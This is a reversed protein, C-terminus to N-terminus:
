HNRREPLSFVTSVRTGTGTRWIWLFRGSTTRWISHTDNKSEAEGLVLRVENEIVSDLGSSRRSFFELDYTELTDNRFWFRAGAEYGCIVLREFYLSTDSPLEYVGYFTRATSATLGNAQLKNRLEAQTVGWRLGYHNLSGDPGFSPPSACGGWLLLVLSVLVSARM